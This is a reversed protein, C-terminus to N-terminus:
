CGTLRDILAFTVSVYSAILLVDDPQMKQKQRQLGYMRLILGTTALIPFLVGVAIVSGYNVYTM